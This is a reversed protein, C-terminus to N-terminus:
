DDLRTNLVIPEDNGGIFWKHGGPSLTYSKLWGSDVSGKKTQSITPYGELGAHSATPDHYDLTVFGQETLDEGRYDTWQWYVEDAPIRTEKGSSTKYYPVVTVWVKTGSGYHLSVSGDCLRVGSAGSANRHFCKYYAKEYKDGNTTEILATQESGGALATVFVFGEKGLGRFTTKSSDTSQVKLMSPDSIIWTIESPNVLQLMPAMVTLAVTGTAPYVIAPDPTITLSEYVTGGGTVTVQAYADKGGFTAMVPQDDAKSVATVTGGDITIHGGSAVWSAESSVDVSPGSDYHAMAKLEGTEGAAITLKNPEITLSKLTPTSNTVTVAATDSLGKYTATITAEGVSKGTTAGTNKVVAAVTSNNSTWNASTTIFKSTGDGYHAKAEFNFTKDVGLTKTEPSVTISTPTPESSRVKVVVSTEVGNVLTAKLTTEGSANAYAYASFDTKQSPNLYLVYSSYTWDSIKYQAKEDSTLSEGGVSEEGNTFYYHVTFKKGDGRDMIVDGPDLEVRELERIAKNVTVITTSEWPTMGDGSGEEKYSAKVTATGEGKGEINGRDDLTIISSDGSVIAWTSEGSLDKADGGSAYKAMANIKSSDGVDLTVESPDTYYSSITDKIFTLTQEVTELLYKVTINFSGPESSRIKFNALGDDDTLRNSPSILLNEDASYVYIPKDSLGVGTVDTVKAEIEDYDESDMASAVLANDTTVGVSLTGPYVCTVISTDTDALETQDNTSLDVGVKEQTWYADAVPWHEEISVDGVTEYLKNLQALSPLQMGRIQCLSGATSFDFLPIRYDTGEIIEPVLSQYPIHYADAGNQDWPATYREGDELVIDDWATKAGAVTIRVTGVAYGNRHDYVYYSVDYRGPESAQFNFSQNTVSTPDTASVTANFAYADTLQLDDKDVDDIYESVNVTITDNLAVDEPGAFDKATPMTNGSGSVAVDIYGVKVDSGDPAKLSYIIRNIGKSISDPTYTLLGNLEDSIVATGNGLLLSTDLTYGEPYGAGLEAKVDISIEGADLTTVVSIPTLVASTKTESVLVYSYSSSEKEEAGDDSTNKVTYQYFCVSPSTKTVSFSLAGPTLNVQPADCGETVPMVSVLSLPLGQPDRVSDALLVTSNDDTLLLQSYNETAVPSSITQSGSVDNNAADDGGCSVLLISLFYTLFRKFMIM